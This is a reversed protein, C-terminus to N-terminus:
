RARLNLSFSTELNDSASEGSLLSQQKLKLELSAQTDLMHQQHMQPQQLLMNKSYHDINQLSHQMQHTRSHSTCGEADDNVTHKCETLDINLSERQLNYTKLALRNQRHQQQKKEELLMELRLRQNDRFEQSRCTNFASFCGTPEQLQEEQAPVAGFCTAVGDARPSTGRKPSRRMEDNKANFKAILDNEEPNSVASGL